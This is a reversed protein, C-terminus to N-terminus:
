RAQIKMEVDEQLKFAFKQEVPFDVTKGKTLLVAGTGAGAGIATGIAAGKGGGAIAGIVAGAAAGIGIKKADGKKDGEAQFALTNTDISYREEEVYIRDLTFSLEARGKVKGSPKANTVRGTIRSGRPALLQGDVELDEALSAEFIDGAQSQESSLSQELRIEFNLGAPLTATTPAPPEAAPPEAGPPEAPAAQQAPPSERGAQRDASSRTPQDPTAAQSGSADGAPPAAEEAEDGEAQIDEEEAGAFDRQAEIMQGVTMGAPLKQGAPVDARALYDQLLQYEESSLANSAIIDNYLQEQNSETVEVDLLPSDAGGRNCAAGLVTILALAMIWTKMTKM